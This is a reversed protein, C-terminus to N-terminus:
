RPQSLGASLLDVVDDLWPGIAPQHELLVRHLLAGILMSLAAEPAVARRWEGRAMARKVLAHLPVEAGRAFQRAAMAALEPSSSEAFAARALALGTPQILFEVVATALATLDGRLSGTDVDAGELDVLVYELAGAVLAERTPWRRYISTKNVEAAIAIREISLKALGSAGLEELTALMVADTVAEGRPRGADRRRAAKMVVVNYRM